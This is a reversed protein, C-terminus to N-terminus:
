SAGSVIANVFPQIHSQTPSLRLWVTGMMIALGIYMAFRIGYAVVDRYSKIFSRHLLALTIRDPTGHAKHESLAIKEDGSNASSTLREALSSAEASAKWDSQIKELRGQAGEDGMSFDANTFDLLYEAPNTYLPM